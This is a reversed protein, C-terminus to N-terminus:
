DNLAEDTKSRLKYYGVMVNPTKILVEGRPAPDGNEDKDQVTYGMEPVSICKIEVEGPSGTSGPYLDFPNTLTGSSNTETAGYGNLVPVSFVVRCFEMVEPSPPASGVGIM